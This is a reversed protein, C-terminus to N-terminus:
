RAVPTTSRSPTNHRSLKAGVANWALAKFWKRPKTSARQLLFDRLEDGTGYDDSRVRKSINSKNFKPDFDIFDRLDDVSGDDDEDEDENDSDSSDIDEESLEEGTYKPPSPPKSLKTGYAHYPSKEVRVRKSTNEQDGSEDSSYDLDSGSETGSSSQSSESPSRGRKRGSSVAQDPTGVFRVPSVALSAFSRQPSGAFHIQHPSVVHLPSPVMRIPVPQFPSGPHRFQVPSAIQPRGPSRMIVHQPFPSRVSAPHVPPRFVSPQQQLLEFDSRLHM